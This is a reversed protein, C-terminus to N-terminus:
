RKNSAARRCGEGYIKFTAVMKERLTSDIEQPTDLKLTKEMDAKLLATFAPYKKVDWGYDEVVSSVLGPPAIQQTKTINKSKAIYDALGFYVKALFVCDEKSADKLAENIGAFLDREDKINESNGNNVPLSPLNLNLKSTDLNGICGSLLALSAIIAYKKNM